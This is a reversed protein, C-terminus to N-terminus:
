YLAKIGTIDGANLTRKIIEGLGAYGYMTEQNCGTDYLDGMGVAHGLEHTAINEFDMKGSEGSASWDFDVDDFIMDWEALYRFKPPGGFVGWIITVGIVGEGAIDAFYVENLGDPSDSDAELTTSALFGAGLINYEAAIEWKGIDTVLNDLVFGSLLNSNNEANVFWPEVSKWKAGKALFTYCQSDTSPKGPKEPKVGGKANKNKHHIIAYGEVMKGTGPDLATGLSIVPSNGAAEPLSFSKGSGPKAWVPSVFLVFAVILSFTIIKKNM